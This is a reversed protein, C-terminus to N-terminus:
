TSVDDHNLSKNSCSDSFRNGSKPNMSQNETVERRKMVIYAALFKKLRTGHGRGDIADHGIEFKEVIPFVAIAIDDVEALLQPGIGVIRAIGHV